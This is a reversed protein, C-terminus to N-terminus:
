LNLTNNYGYIRSPRQISGSIFDYLSLPNIITHRVNSDQSTEMFGPLETIKDEDM